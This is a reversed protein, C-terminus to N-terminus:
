ASSRARGRALSGIFLGVVAGAAAWALYMWSPPSPLRTAVGKASAVTAEILPEYRSAQEEPYSTTVISTGTDDPFILQLKRENVKKAPAGFMGIGVSRICDGEMLGVLAGDARTRSEHRRHSWACDPFAAPMENALGALDPEAVSMPKSSHNLIVRANPAGEDIWVKADATEAAKSGTYPVFGTPPVYVFPANAARSQPGVIRPGLIAFSVAVVASVVLTRM